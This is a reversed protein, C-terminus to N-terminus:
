AQFVRTAMAISYLHNHSPGCTSKINLLLPKTEGLLFKKTLTFLKFDTLVTFLFMFLKSQRTESDYFGESRINNIPACM